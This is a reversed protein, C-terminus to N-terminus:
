IINKIENILHAIVKNISKAIIVTNQVGMQKFNDSQDGPIRFNYELWRQKTIFGAASMWFCYDRIVSIGINEHDHFDNDHDIRNLFIIIDNKLDFL